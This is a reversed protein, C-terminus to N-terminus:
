AATAGGENIFFNAHKESIMVPGNRKGKLGSHDILFSTPITGREAYQRLEPFKELISDKDIDERKWSVNKFVCGACKTGIAQKETRELTITRVREQIEKADGPKLKLTANLVVWEPHLQFTSHRYGFECNETPIEYRAAATVDYVEVKQVVHAMEGGFCRANGRVSGGVTGPM